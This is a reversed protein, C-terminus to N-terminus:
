WDFMIARTNVLSWKHQLMNTLRNSVKTYSWTNITRIYRIKSCYNTQCVNSSSYSDVFQTWFLEWNEVTFTKLFQWTKRHHFSNHWWFKSTVPTFYATLSNYFLIGSPHCFRLVLSAGSVKTSLGVRGIVFLFNHQLVLLEIILLNLLFCTSFGPWFWFIDKIAVNWNWQFAFLM